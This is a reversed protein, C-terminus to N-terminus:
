SHSLVWSVLKLAEDNTVKNPPMPIAGWTGKGGKQVKESLAASAEAQGKYKAAIDKFAPGVLKKDIAHCALCAKAKALDMMEDALANTALSGSFVAAMLIHQYKM